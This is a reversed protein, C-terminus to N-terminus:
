QVYQVSVQDATVGLEKIVLMMISDAQSRELKKSQVVVKYKNNQEPSVAVNNYQKQLEEELGIIKASKDDLQNLQEIAKGADEENQKTDSIVGYVKNYDEKFKEDRKEQLQSFVSSVAGSAELKDLVAQDEKNLAAADKVADKNETVLPASTSDKGTTGQKTVETVNIGDSNTATGAAETADTQVQQKTGDTTLLDSSKNVDETFLYYASLIVMLSLMSVLWVTQRKTNM